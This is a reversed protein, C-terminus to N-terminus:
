TYCTQPEKRNPGTVDVVDFVPVPQGRQLGSKGGAAGAATLCVLLILAPWRRKM